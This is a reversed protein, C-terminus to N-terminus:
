KEAEAREKELASVAGGRTSIVEKINETRESLERRSSQATSKEVRADSLRLAAATLKENIERAKEGNEGNQELLAALRKLEAELAAKKEAALAQKEEITAPKHGYGLKARGASVAGSTVLIVDMGAGSLDSLVRAVRDISRLNLHGNEHSLSSSGIKVVIKKIRDEM